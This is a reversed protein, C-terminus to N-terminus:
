TATTPSCSSRPPTRTARDRRPHRLDVPEDDRRRRRGTRRLERLTGPQRSGSHGRRRCVGGAGCGPVAHLLREEREHAQAHMNAIEVGGITGRATGLSLARGPDDTHVHVKLATPDGVVLLSDGLQELEAELEDTDLAEGEVVFVTCYRYRSLEQHIAEFGLPGDVRPRHCAPAAASRPRSAACSRSSGQRARM